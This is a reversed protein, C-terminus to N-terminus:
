LVTDVAEERKAMTGSKPRKSPPIEAIEDETEFSPSKRKKYVTGSTAPLDENDGIPSPPSSDQSRATPDENGAVGSSTTPQAVSSSSSSSSSSTTPSSITSSYSARPIHSKSHEQDASHGGTEDYGHKYRTILSSLSSSSSSSSSSTSSSSPPPGSHSPDEEKKSTSTSTTISAQLPYQLPLLPSTSPSISESSSAKPSSSGIPGDVLLSGGSHQGVGGGAAEASAGLDGGNPSTPPVPSSKPSAPAYADSHTQLDDNDHEEDDDDGSEFYELEDMSRQFRENEQYNSSLSSSSPGTRGSLSTFQLPPTEPDHEYDNGGQRKRDDAITKFTSFITTYPIDKLQDYYRQVFHTVLAIPPTVTNKHMQAFLELCASNILNYRSANALFLTVVRDLLNDKIIVKNLLADELGLVLRLSRVAALAVHKDVYGILPNMRSLVTHDIIYNRARSGHHMLIFGVFDVLNRMLLSVADKMPNAEAGQNHVLIPSLLTDLHSSYFMNLFDSQDLIDETAVDLLLRILDTIANKVATDEDEHLSRILLAMLCESSANTAILHKRLQRGDTDLSALLIEVSVLRMEPHSLTRTLVELLGHEHLSVYFSLKPEQELHKSIECLENLFKLLDKLQEPSADLSKM